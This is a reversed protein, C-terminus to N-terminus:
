HSKKRMRQYIYRFLKAAGLVERKDELTTDRILPWRSQIANRYMEDVDPRYVIWEDYTCFLFVRGSSARFQYEQLGDRRQEFQLNLRMLEMEEEEPTKASPSVPSVPRDPFLTDAKYTKAFYDYIQENTVESEEQNIKKKIPPYLLKM